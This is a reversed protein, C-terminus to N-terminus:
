PTFECKGTTLMSGNKALCCHCFGTTRASLLCLLVSVYKLSTQVVYPSKIQFFFHKFYMYKKPVPSFTSHNHASQKQPLTPESGLVWMPSIVAVCLELEPPGSWEEPRQTCRSEHACARVYAHVCVCLYLLFLDKFFVQRHPIFGSLAHKDDWSEPSTRCLCFSWDQDCLSIIHFNKRVSPMASEGKKLRQATYLKRDKVKM